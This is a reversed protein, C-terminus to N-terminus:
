SRMTPMFTRFIARNSNLVALYAPTMWGVVFVSEYTGSALKVMAGGIFLPVAYNVEDMSRVADLLYDPM